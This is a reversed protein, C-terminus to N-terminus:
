GFRETRRDRCLYHEFQHSPRPAIRDREDWFQEVLVELDSNHCTRQRDALNGWGCCRGWPSLQKHQLEARHGARYHPWLYYISCWQFNFCSSFEGHESRNTAM